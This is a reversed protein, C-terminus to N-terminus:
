EKVEQLPCNSDKTLGLDNETVRGLIPCFCNDATILSIKCDVCSKPMEMEIKVSMIVGGKGRGKAM